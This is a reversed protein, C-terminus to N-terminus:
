LEHSNPPTYTVFARAKQKKAGQTVVRYARFGLVEFKFGLSVELVRRTGKDPDYNTGLQPYKLGLLPYSSPRPQCRSVLVGCFCFYM